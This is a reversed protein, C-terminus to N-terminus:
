LPLPFAILLLFCSAFCLQLPIHVLSHVSRACSNSCRSYLGLQQEGSPHLSASPRRTWFARANDRGLTFLHLFSCVKTPPNFLSRLIHEAFTFERHHSNARNSKTSFINLATFRSLTLSHLAHHSSVSVCSSTSSCSLSVISPIHHPTHIYIHTNRSAPSYQIISIIQATRWLLSGHSQGGVRDRLIHHRCTGSLFRLPDDLLPFFFFFLSFPFPPSQGTILLVSACSCTHRSEPVYVVPTQIDRPGSTRPHSTFRPLCRTSPSLSFM